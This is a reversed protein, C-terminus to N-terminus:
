ARTEFEEDQELHGNQSKYRMLQDSIYQNMHEDAEVRERVRAPDDHYVSNSMSQADDDIDLVPVDFDSRASISRATSSRRVHRMASTRPTGIDMSRQFMDDFYHAMAVSPTRPTQPLRCTVSYCSNAQM